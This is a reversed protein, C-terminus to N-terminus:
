VPSGYTVIRQCDEGLGRASVRAFMECGQMTNSFSRTVPVCVQLLM